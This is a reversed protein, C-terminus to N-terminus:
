RALDVRFLAEGWGDTLCRAQILVYGLDAPVAVGGLSRTFPQETEHPHALPRIGLVQGDPALVQWGDAYHDWGSDPHRLTVSFQWGASNQVATAATIEPAEAHAPGAIALLLAILHKMM